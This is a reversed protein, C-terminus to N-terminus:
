SQVRSQRGSPVGGNTADVDAAIQKRNEDSHIMSAGRRLARVKVHGRGGTRDM